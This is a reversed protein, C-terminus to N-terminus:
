TILYDNSDNNNFVEVPHPNFTILMSKLTEKDAITKVLDIISSHGQHLGDFNGITIVCNQPINQTKSNLIKM